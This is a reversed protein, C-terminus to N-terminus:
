DNVRNPTPFFLQALAAGPAPARMFTEGVLFSRVDHAWMQEVDSRQRIGSETIVLHDAPILSRLRLTTALDVNFTRLDRNNIGILRTNLTLAHALEAENHVEVLVALGLEQALTTLDRLADPTLAAVILLICDAGLAGAEYVQYSDIIFDKRLVPLGCAARASLLHANAGQFYDTETLVSLCAAGHTAYDRAITDPSFPKRLVGQSPSAQKIEAIVAPLNQAHKKTLAASFDRREVRRAEARARVDVFSHRQRAREVEAYKSALIAKLLDSM